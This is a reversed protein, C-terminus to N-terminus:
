LSAHSSRFCIRIGLLLTWAPTATFLISFSRLGIFTYVVAVMLRDFEIWMRSRVLGSWQMRGSYCLHMKGDREGILIGHANRIGGLIPDKSTFESFLTCNSVPSVSPCFRCLRILYKWYCFYFLRVWCLYYCMEWYSYVGQLVEYRVSRSAWQNCLFM